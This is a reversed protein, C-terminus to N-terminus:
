FTSEHETATSPPVGECTPCYRVLKDKVDGGACGGMGEVRETVRQYKSMVDSNCDYCTPMSTDDRPQVYIVDTGIRNLYWTTPTEVFQFSPGQTPSPRWNLEKGKFVKAQLSELNSKKTRSSM